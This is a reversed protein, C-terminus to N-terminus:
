ILAYSFIAISNHIFRPFFSLINVSFIIRHIKGGLYIQRMANYKVRMMFSYVIYKLNQSINHAFDTEKVKMEAELFLKKTYIVM